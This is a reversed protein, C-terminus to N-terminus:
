AKQVSAVGGTSQGLQQREEMGRSRGAYPFSVKFGRPERRVTVMSKSIKNFNQFLECLTICLAERPIVRSASITCIRVQISVKHSIFIVENSLLLISYYPSTIFYDLITYHSQTKVCDVFCPARDRSDRSEPLACPVCLPREASRTKFTKFM